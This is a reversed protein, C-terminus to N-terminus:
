EESLAVTQIDNTLEKELGTQKVIGIIATVCPIWCLFWGAILGIIKGIWDGDSFNVSFIDKDKGQLNCNATIGSGMGLLMNIGGVGKEVTIKMGNKMKFVRVKYGKAQYTQTIQESFADLDFNESVNLMFDKAM